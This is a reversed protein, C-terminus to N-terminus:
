YSFLTFLERCIEQLQGVQEQQPLHSGTPAWNDITVLRWREGEYTMGRIMVGLLVPHDKQPSAEKVRLQVLMSRCQLRPSWGPFYFALDLTERESWRRTQPDDRWPAFSPSAEPFRTKVLTVVSALAQVCAFSHAKDVANV